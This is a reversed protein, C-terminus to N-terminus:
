HFISCNEIGVNQIDRKVLFIADINQKLCISAYQDVAGLLKFRDKLHFHVKLHPMMLTGVYFYGMAFIIMREAIDQSLMSSGVYHLAKRRNRQMFHVRITFYDFPVYKIFFLFYGFCLIVM